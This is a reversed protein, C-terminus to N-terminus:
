KAIESHIYRVVLLYMSEQEDAGISIAKLTYKERGADEIVQQLEFSLKEGAPTIMAGSILFLKVSLLNEIFITDDVASHQPESNPLIENIGIGRSDERSLQGYKMFISEATRSGGSGSMDGIIEGLDYDQGGDTNKVTCNFLLGNKITKNTLVQNGSATVIDNPSAGGYSRDINGHVWRKLASWLTKTLVGSDSVGLLHEDPDIHLGNIEEAQSIPKTIPTTAM